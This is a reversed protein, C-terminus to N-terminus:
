EVARPVSFFDAAQEPANSLIARVDGNETVRDERLRLPLDHPNALPAVYSVDVENLQEIWTLIRTVEGAVQAQEHAPVDLRALHAIKAIEAPTLATM